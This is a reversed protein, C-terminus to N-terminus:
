ITMKNAICCIYKHKSYEHLAVSVKRVRHDNKINSKTNTKKQKLEIKDYV